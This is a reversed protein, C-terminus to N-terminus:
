KAESRHHRLYGILFVLPPIAVIALFRGPTEGLYRLSRRVVYVMMIIESILVAVAVGNLGASLAAGYAAAMALLNAACYVAAVARHRNTAYELMLSSHWLARVALIALLWIMLGWHMDVAGRTWLRLLPEGFLLLGAVVALALWVALQCSRHHLRRLLSMDKAGYAASIEPSVTNYVTSVLQMGFRTMTRLTSFVVTAAPGLALGVVVVMGQLNLANGLTLGMSAWAPGFLRRVTAMNGYRWGFVIDPNARWLVMRMALTGAVRGAFLAAAAMVPGGDLLVALALLGFEVVRIVATLFQGLGYAGGCHFGAYVMSTQFSAMVQGSLLLLIIGASAGGIMSINLWDGVPFILVVLAVIFLLAVSAGLILIWVSQFSELVHEQEGSATLMTMDHTAATAFGTDSASLYVPIATLLLWEGYLAVGWVSLLLPVTALQILTNVAQGFGQAGFGKALRARLVKNM